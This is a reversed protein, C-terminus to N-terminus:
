ISVNMTLAGRNFKDTGRGLPVGVFSLKHNIVQKPPILCKRSSTNGLLESRKGETLHGISFDPKGACLVGDSLGEPSDTSYKSNKYDDSFGHCAIPMAINPKSAAPLIIAIGESKEQRLNYHSFIIRVAEQLSNRMGEMSPPIKIDSLRLYLANLRTQNYLKEALDAKRLADELVDIVDELLNKERISFKNEERFIPRAFSVVAYPLEENLSNLPTAIVTQDRGGISERYFDDYDDSAFDCKSREEVVVTRRRRAAMVNIGSKHDTNYYNYVVDRLERRSYQHLARIKYLALGPIRQAITGAGLSIDYVAYFWEAFKQLLADHMDPAYASTITNLEKRLEEFRLPDVEFTRKSMPVIIPKEARVDLIADKGRSIHPHIEIFPQKKTLRRFSLMQFLTYQFDGHNPNTISGTGLIVTSRGPMGDIPLYYRTKSAVFQAHSHGHLIANIGMKSCKDLLTNANLITSLLPPEPLAEPNKIYDAFLDYSTKYDFVPFVHHHIVALRLILKEDKNNFGDLFDEAKQFQEIQVHGLGHWLVNEVSCSNFGFIAAHCDTEPIPYTIIDPERYDWTRGKINKYFDAYAEYQAGNEHDHAEWNVDHNGPVISVRSPDLNFNEMLIEIFIAANKFDSPDHKDTIDGSLVMADVKPSTRERLYSDIVRCALEEAGKRTMLIKNNGSLTKGFHLDSLHLITCM